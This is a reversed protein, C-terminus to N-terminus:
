QEGTQLLNRVDLVNRAVDQKQKLAKLIREDVTGPVVLDVVTVTGKQGDRHLRSESQWRDSAKFSNSYYVMTHSVRQLGDVGTGAASPNAIFVQCQDDQMFRRKAAQKQESTQRGDWVAPKWHKFTESLVDIDNHFRAWILVKGQAEHAVDLAAQARNSKLQRTVGDEASVFGCLVQQLRMLQVLATPASVLSGDDLQTLLEEKLDEYARHQEATMQVHRTLYTREPLDLCDAATMRVAWGDLREKLEELNRYGVIRVAGHPAGPIPQTVCFRNRFSYFSSFGFVDDSLFRTQSYLDEAGKTIPTGTLIRRYPALDRLKLVAKTRKAGPTKISVSEDLAWLAQGSSLVREAFRVGKETAFADIHMSVVRLGDQYGLVEDAREKWGKTRNSVYVLCKRRVWEPLHAPLQEEVWQEHVGNPATVLLTDIKGEAWLHAATDLIVKTKGLGQELFLAFAGRDKSIHFAKKQHERPATKFRFSMAETPLPRTKAERADAELKALDQVDLHRTGKWHADPLHHKLFEVNARSPEFFLERGRWRKRGPMDRVAEFVQANLSGSLVMHNKRDEITIM